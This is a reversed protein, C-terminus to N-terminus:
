STPPTAAPACSTSGSPRGEIAAVVDDIDIWGWNIPYTVEDLVVLRHENGAILAKAKAWAERAVAEDEAPRRVGM